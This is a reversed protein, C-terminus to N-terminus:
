LRALAYAAAADTLDAQWYDAPEGPAPRDWSPLGLDTARVDYGASQLRPVLARGVKGRSGTVLVRM